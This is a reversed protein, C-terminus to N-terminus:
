KKPKPDACDKTISKYNILLIESFCYNQIDKEKQGSKARSKNSTSVIFVSWMYNPSDM